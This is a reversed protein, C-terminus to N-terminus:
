PSRRIDKIRRQKSHGPGNLANREFKQQRSLSNSEIISSFLDADLIACTYIGKISM